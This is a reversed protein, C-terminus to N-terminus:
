AVVERRLQLRVPRVQLRRVGAKDITHISDPKRGRFRFDYKGIKRSNGM